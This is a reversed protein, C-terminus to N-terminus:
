SYANNTNSSENELSLEYSILVAKLIKIKEDTPLNFDMDGDQSKDTSSVSQMEQVAVLEQPKLKPYLYQMLNLLVDAQKEPQLQDLISMLKTPVDVGQSEFFGQLLLTKKNRCGKQRGGTKALGTPRAM